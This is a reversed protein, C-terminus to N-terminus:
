SLLDRLPELVSSIVAKTGLGAVQDTNSIWKIQHKGAAQGQRVYHFRRDIHRTRKTSQATKAM